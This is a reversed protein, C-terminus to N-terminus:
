KTGGLKGQRGRISLTLKKGLRTKWVEGGEKLHLTLIFGKGM